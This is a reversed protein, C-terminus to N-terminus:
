RNVKQPQTLITGSKTEITDPREPTASRPELHNMARIWTVLQWVQYEPIKGGWSPMGNPRGKVITDFLNAPENGYIWVDKILPPGIGGGGNFHCGSCNYWNFLRQGESIDLANGESPNAPHPESASGGPQILSERAADGFVVLQAPAPRLNRQERKCSVLGAAIFAVSAANLVVVRYSRGLVAPHSLLFRAFAHFRVEARGPGRIGPCPNWPIM